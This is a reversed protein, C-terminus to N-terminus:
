EGEDILEPHLEVREECLPDGTIKDWTRDENCRGTPQDCLSCMQYNGEKKPQHIWLYGFDWGPESMIFAGNTKSHSCLAPKSLTNGQKQERKDEELYVGM